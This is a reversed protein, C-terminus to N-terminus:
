LSLSLSGPYKSAGPLWSHEIKELVESLLAEPGVLSTDNDMPM